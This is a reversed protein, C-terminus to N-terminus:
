YKRDLAPNAAPDPESKARGQFLDVQNVLSEYFRMPERVDTIAEFGSNESASYILITASRLFFQPLSERLGVDTVKRWPIFDVRRNLVGSVRLIRFDTIVYRTFYAQLGRVVLYVFTGIILFVFFVRATSQVVALVVVVALFLVFIGVLQEVVWARLSRQEMLVIHEPRPSDILLYSETIRDPDWRRERLLARITKHEKTWASGTPERDGAQSM